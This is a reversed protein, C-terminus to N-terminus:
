PKTKQPFRFAMSIGIIENTDWGAPLNVSQVMYYPRISYIQTIPLRVGIQFRNQTFTGGAAFSNTGPVFFFENNLVLVPRWSTDLPLTYEIGPRFRLRASPSRTDPFRGEIQTRLNPRLSGKSRSLTINILLRNEYNVTPNGPFREYRYLPTLTLIPSLRLGVGAQAFYDFLNSGGEDLREHVEFEFSKNATFPYSLGQDLWLGIQKEDEPDEPPQQQQARASINLVCCCLLAIAFRLRRKAPISYPSRLM